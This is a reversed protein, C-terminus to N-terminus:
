GAAEEPLLCLREERSRAKLSGLRGMSSGGGVPLMGRIDPFFSSPQTPLGCSPDLKGRNQQGASGKGPRKPGAMSNAGEERQQDAEVVGGQWIGKELEVFGKFGRNSGTKERFVEM